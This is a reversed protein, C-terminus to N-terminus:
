YTVEITNGERDTARIRIQTPLSFAQTKCTVNDSNQNQRTKTEFAKNETLTPKIRKLIPNNQMLKSFSCVKSLSMLDICATFKINKKGNGSFRNRKM